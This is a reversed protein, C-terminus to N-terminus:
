GTWGITTSGCLSDRSLSNELSQRNGQHYNFKPEFGGVNPINSFAPHRVLVGGRILPSVVFGSGYEGLNAGM